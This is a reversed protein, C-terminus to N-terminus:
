KSATIETNTYIDPEVFSSRGRGCPVHPASTGLEVEGGAGAEECIAFFVTKHSCLVLSAPNRHDNRGCNVDALLRSFRLFCNLAPLFTRFPFGRASCSPIHTAIYIM